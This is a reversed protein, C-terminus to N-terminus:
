LNSSTTYRHGKPSTLDNAVSTNVFKLKWHCFNFWWSKIIEDEGEVIWALFSVMLSMPIITMKKAEFGPQNAHFQWNTSLFSLYLDLHRKKSDEDKFNWSFTVIHYIFVTSANPLLRSEYCLHQLGVYLHLGSWFCKPNIKAVRSHRQYNIQQVDIFGSM